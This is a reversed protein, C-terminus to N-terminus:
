ENSVVRQEIHASLSRGRMVIDELYLLGDMLGASAIIASDQTM